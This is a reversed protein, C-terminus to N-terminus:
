CASVCTLDYYPKVQQLDGAPYIGFDIPAQGMQSEQLMYWWVNINNKVLDCAVDKWYLRANEPSAVAQNSNPGKVPWGTETVWVPKSGALARTKSLGDNFRAKAPAGAANPQTTEWYPYGDFGLWDVAEIVAKNTGNLFSDYTDVHGISTSELPTGVLASRVRSICDILAQANMGVEGNADRYLDESGVSIGVM